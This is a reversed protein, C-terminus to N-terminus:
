GPRLGEFCREYREMMRETWARLDFRAAVRSRAEAASEKVEAPPRALLEACADALAAPSRETVRCTSLEECVVLHGALDTAVVPLGTCIAEIVAFPPGGGEVRSTSVFLDSAGYLMRVDDSSEIVRAHGELGLRAIGAHAEDDGRVTLALVEAQEGVRELLSRVTALFLDGDKLHWNWGFHLLVRAGRPLGLRDRAALREQPTVLPFSATEIGNGVIEVRERSAGAAIAGRAPDPGSALIEAVSRGFLRFKVASQLRRRLSKYFPTHIHWLVATDPRGRAALVAAVDYRTFHTHLLVPGPREDLKSRIRGATQRRPDNPVTRVVAPSDSRLQEFWPRGEAQPPFGLEAKWGRRAAAESIARVM